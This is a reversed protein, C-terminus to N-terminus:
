QLIRIAIDCHFSVVMPSPGSALREGRQLHWLITCCHMHELYGEQASNTGFTMVLPLCNLNGGSMVRM